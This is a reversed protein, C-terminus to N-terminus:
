HDFTALHHLLSIASVQNLKVAADRRADSRSTKM